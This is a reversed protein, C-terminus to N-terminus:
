RQYCNRGLDFRVLRQAHDPNLSNSVSTTNRFNNEAFNSKSFFDASSLFACNGLMSLTLLTGSARKVM